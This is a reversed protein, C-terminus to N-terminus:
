KTNYILVNGVKLRIKLLRSMISLKDLDELYSSSLNDKRKLDENYIAYILKAM